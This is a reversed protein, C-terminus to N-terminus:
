TYGTVSWTLEVDELDVELDSKTLRMKWTSLGWGCRNSRIIDEGWDGCMSIIGEYEEKSLIKKTQKKSKKPVLTQM